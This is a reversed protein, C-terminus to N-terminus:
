FEFIVALLPWYRGTAASQPVSLTFVQKKRIASTELGRNVNHLHPFNNSIHNRIHQSHTSCLGLLNSNLFEFIVALLPQSHRTFVQKERIASTELGRNFTTLSSLQQPGEM